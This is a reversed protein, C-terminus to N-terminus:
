SNLDWEHPPTSLVVSHYLKDTVQPLDTTKEMLLVSQWSLELGGKIIIEREENINIEENKIGFKL